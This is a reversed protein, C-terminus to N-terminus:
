ALLAIILKIASRGNPASIIDIKITAKTLNNKTLIM